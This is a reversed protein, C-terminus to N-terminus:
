RNKQQQRKEQKLEEIKKLAEERAEPPLDKV